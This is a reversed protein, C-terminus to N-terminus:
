GNFKESAKLRTAEIAQKEALHTSAADGPNLHKNLLKHVLAYVTMITPIIIGVLHTVIAAQDEPKIGIDFKAMLFGALGAIWAALIRALVTQLFSM